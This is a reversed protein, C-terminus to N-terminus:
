SHELSELYRQAELAAQCGSGAATIAQRYLHDKVDGAGFVGPLNTHSRETVKLFGKEDLDLTGKFVATNPIHGIALFMFDVALTREEGTKLNKLKLGTVFQDGLVEEVGTDWIVEIKPNDFTKKQMIESARFEDRRHIIYVKEAFKSIFNAEEMASDGGGIVAVQKGKTFYGDCTACTSVGKGIYKKESEIGLYRASAGTAIILSKTELTKDALKVSITSGQQSIGECYGFVFRAGFKEAQAKINAVLEPGQVGEPFGPFNEVATTTAIQGGDEKGTIVLPNLHARAAYVAATNGAVGSGLIIVNEM